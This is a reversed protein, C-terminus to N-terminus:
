KEREGKKIVQMSGIIKKIDDIKHRRMFDKTDRIIKNIIGPEVFIMSGVQVAKAGVMLFELATRYDYVGGVGIIPINVEQYVKYVIYLAIPHIAPGSLGAVGRPILFERKEVDIAMGMITNILSLGDAGNKECEKAVDIINVFNPALKVFVPGERFRSKVIGVIRGAVKKDQGFEMGGRDVNPCSLNVELAHVKAKNLEESLVEFEDEKEAFINVIVPVGIKKLLPWKEKIFRELGINELGISNLLGCPVEAIREPPNGFRENLSIGKTVIAGFETIDVENKHDLLEVGYAFTGSAPMFPNKLKLGSLNVELNM